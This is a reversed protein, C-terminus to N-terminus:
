NALSGEGVRAAATAEATAAPGAPPLIRNFLVDIFTRIPGVSRSSKARLIAGQWSSQCFEALQRVDWHPAIEGAEQAERFCAAFRDRHLQFIEELRARFVESQSAMEQSLSGVLCGSRCEQSQIRECAQEFYARLRELPGLAPDAQIRDFKVRIDDAFRNLVQLGFDEKSAFYYYFSGKPVGAAQLISDIGTNGYGRELFFCKGTELLTTKTTEKSM